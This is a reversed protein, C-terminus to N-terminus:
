GNETQPGIPFSTLLTVLRPADNKAGMWRSPGPSGTSSPRSSDACVVCARRTIWNAFRGDPLDDQSERYGIWRDEPAANRTPESYAILVCVM